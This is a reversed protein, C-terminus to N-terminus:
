RSREVYTGGRINVTDGAQVRNAAYQISKWPSNITGSNSDKGNAAVYYDAAHATATVTINIAALIVARALWPAHQRSNVTRSSRAPRHKSM